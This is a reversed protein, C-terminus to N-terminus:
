KLGLWVVLSILSIGVGWRFAPPDYTLTITHEGPPVVVGQVVYNVKYVQTAAGDLEARWGGAWGENVVM